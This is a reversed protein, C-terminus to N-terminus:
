HVEELEASEHEAARMAAALAFRDHVDLKLYVSGLQGSVTKASVTLEKAIERNTMGGAALKAVRREAVTLSGVGSFVARRPRAGTSVLEARARAALADAGCRHALDGGRMLEARATGRRGARRLASGLEVGARALELQARSQELVAVAEELFGIRDAAGNVVGRVTLARGLV